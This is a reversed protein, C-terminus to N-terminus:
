RVLGRENWAKLAEFNLRVWRGRRHVVGELDGRYIHQKLKTRSMDLYICAEDITINAREM